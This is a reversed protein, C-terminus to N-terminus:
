PSTRHFIVPSVVTGTVLATKGDPNPTLAWRQHGLTQWRVTKGDRIAPYSRSGWQASKEQVSNAASNIVFTYDALLPSTNWWRRTGGINLTGTWTGAFKPQPAAQTRPTRSPPQSKTSSESSDGTVRPKSTRKTQPMVSQEPEPTPSESAEQIPAPLRHTLLLLVVTTLLANGKGKMTIDQPFHCTRSARGEATYRSFFRLNSGSCNKWRFQTLTELTPRPDRM